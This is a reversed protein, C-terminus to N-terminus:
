KFAEPSPANWPTRRPIWRPVNQKYLLYDSGFRRELGPEELLPIYVANIVVCILFWYLLPLASFLVAEGLLICFVGSIMPNRVHRYIGRVVLKQTPDWPALTGQGLTAFFKITQYLLSLGLAIFLLGLTIPILNVPAPWSGGLNATHMSNLILSPIIITVTGPLLLITALHRLLTM